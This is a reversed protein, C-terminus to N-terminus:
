KNVKAMWNVIMTIAPRQPGAPQRILLREGDRTVDYHTRSDILTPIPTAVLPKPSSVRIGSPTVDLDVAAVGGQGAGGELYDLERGNRTWRPHVGGGPSIQTKEASAPFRQIYVESSGTEFSSYAIWRGDPSVRAAYAAPNGPVVEFPKGEGFLPLAWVSWTPHEQTAVYYLIFKGDPSWDSMVVDLVNADLQLLRQEKGSQDVAIKYLGFLGDRDSVFAVEKSDPSWVPDSDRAAHSTLRSANGRAVDITWIDWNGTQPDMRNVAVQHGDPSLAPNLNEVDPPQDITTLAKGTRDFWMLHGPSGGVGKVLAVAGNASASFLAACSLCAPAADSAVLLAPGELRNAKLNISQAMLGTGRLYMLSSPAAAIAPYETDVLRTTVPSDLSALYEARRHPGVVYYIFHTSDSLFQPAGRQAVGADDAVNVPLPTGGSAPVRFFKFGTSYLIVGNASWDAGALWGTPTGTPDLVPLPSGGAPDTRAIGHLGIFGISTGDPSWFPATGWETGPLARTEFSELSHVWIQDCCAAFAVRRGDPSIALGFGANNAEPPLEIQFEMRAGPGPESRGRVLSQVLATAAVAVVVAAALWLWRGRSPPATSQPTTTTPSSLAEAIELRADAIDHLRESPDKALCRMVLRRISPPLGAPLADLAPEGELLRAITDSATDAAFAARGTLMEYLVCGFAWIDTRKDVPRARAQEPSMYAPTGLVMGTRTLANTTSADGDVTSTRAIGFDLVKVIGSPTIKINSPKLDRHVIGREHASDLALAIQCAVTLAETVPLAGRALREALTPGDVLELVLGQLGSSEELGYIAAINPHTLSALLRGEREFRAAFDADVALGPVLVKIAVQRGLRTDTARYVQGMGGEGILADLRYPGFPAGPSLPPLIDTLLAPTHEAGAERQAALLAEVEARLSPDNSCANQLFVQQASADRTEVAYFLSKIQRWREPTMADGGEM